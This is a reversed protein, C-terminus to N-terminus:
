GRKLFKVNKGDNVYLYKYSRKVFDKPFMRKAKKQALIRKRVYCKNKYTPLCKLKTHVTIFPPIVVGLEDALSIYNPYM